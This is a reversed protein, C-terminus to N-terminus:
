VVFFLHAMRMYAEEIQDVVRSTVNSSTLTLALMGLDTMDDIELLHDPTCKDGRLLAFMFTLCGDSYGTFDHVLAGQGEEILRNQLLIQLDKASPTM